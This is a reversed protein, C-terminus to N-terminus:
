SITDQILAYKKNSCNNKQKLNSQLQEYCIRHKM